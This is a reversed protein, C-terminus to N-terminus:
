ILIGAKGKLYLGKVAEVSPKTNYININQGYGQYDEDADFVRFSLGSGTSGIRSIENLEDSFFWEGDLAVSLDSSDDRDTTRLDKNFNVTVMHWERASCAKYVSQTDGDVVRKVYLMEDEVYCHIYNTTTGIFFIRNQLTDQLSSVWFWVNFCVNDMQVIKTTILNSTLDLVTTSANMLPTRLSGGSGLAYLNATEDYSGDDGGILNDGGDDRCISYCALPTPTSYKTHENNLQEIVRLSVSHKDCQILSNDTVHIVGRFTRNLISLERDLDSVYATQTDEDLLFPFFCMEGIVLTGDQVFVYGESVGWTVVNSVIAIGDYFHEDNSNSTTYHWTLGDDSSIKALLTWNQIIGMAYQVDSLIYHGKVSQAFTGGTVPVLGQESLIHDNM